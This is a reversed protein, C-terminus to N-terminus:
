RGPEPEAKEEPYALQLAALRLQAEQQSMRDFLDTARGLATSIESGPDRAKRTLIFIAQFTSKEVAQARLAVALAEGTPSSLVQDAAALSVRTFRAFLSTFENIKGARLTKFLVDITLAGAARLELAQSLTRQRELIRQRLGDPVFAYMRAVLDAPLDSREILPRQLEPQGRAAEVLSELARRSIAAKPNEVLWRMVNLDGSEVAAEAVREGLTERQLVGLRYELPSARMIEVLDDEDLVSSELLLPFAISIEDRALALVLPKAAHPDRALQEAFQRRVGSAVRGIIEIVLQAALAREGAPMDRSQRSLEYLGSVLQTRAADSTDHALARLAKARQQLSALTAAESIAPPM